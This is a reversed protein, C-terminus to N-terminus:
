CRVLIQSPRHIGSTQACTRTGEIARCEVLFSRLRALSQIDHDSTAKAIADRLDVDEFECYKRHQAKRSCVIQHLHNASVYIVMLMMM